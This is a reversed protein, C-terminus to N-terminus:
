VAELHPDEGVQVGAPLRDVLAMQLAYDPLEIRGRRKVLGSTV